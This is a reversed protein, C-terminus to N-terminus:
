RYKEKFVQQLWLELTLIVSLKESSNRGKLHNEWDQKVMELPIYDQYLASSNMLVDEFLDRAPTQRIWDGHNVFALSHKRRKQLTNFLNKQLTDFLYNQKQKKIERNIKKELRSLFLKVRTQFNPSGIPMKVRKRTGKRPINKYYKPFTTLLMKEYLSNEIKIQDPISYLFEQFQNDLFPVRCEIGDSISLRIDKILFSRIRNDIYLIHASNNLRNFYSIYRDILSNEESSFFSYYNTSSLIKKKLYGNVFDSEPFLHEAGVVGDGGMGHLLINFLNQNKIKNLALIFHMHIFSCSGDTEWIKKIRSTIWNEANITIKHHTAQKVRTVDAAISIDQCDKQGFSVAHIPHNGKPMAAIIARSDLGGSLTLGVKENPRSRVEVAKRFLQGLEEALEREDFNNDLPKIEDWWWYRTKSMSQRQLDWTLITAASLLKVGEFWTNDEIFYRSCCFSELSTKDIKPNFNPLSLFAKLESSWILNNEHITWYLHRLGYRDAILNVKEQNTDYIVATYIGDIEKLFNFDNRNQEYLNLLIEPDGEISRDLQKQLNTQNYFEGNLWIYIGNKYIPQPQTQIVNIHCRTACVFDDCFLKDQQIFKKKSVIMKQMNSLIHKATTQSSKSHTFGIIGTM